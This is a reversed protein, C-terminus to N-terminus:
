HPHFSCVDIETPYPLNHATITVTKEIWESSDGSPWAVQRPETGKATERVGIGNGLDVQPYLVHSPAHQLLEESAAGSLNAGLSNAKTLIRETIDQKSLKSM